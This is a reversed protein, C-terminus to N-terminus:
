REEPALQVVQVERGEAEISAIVQPVAEVFGRFGTHGHEAEYAEPDLGLLILRDAGLRAAIRMAALYNNRIEIMGGDPTKVSEYFMGAYLAENDGVDADPLGVVKKPIALGAVAEWYAPLPDLAVFLDAWPAFRVAKNVAIVKGEHRVADALEQSMRPANGIIIAPQGEWDPLINWNKTGM